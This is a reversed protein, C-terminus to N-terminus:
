RARGEQPGDAAVLSGDVVRVREGPRWAAPQSFTRWSGDDMRVTVRYVTRSRVTKGAEDDAVAGFGTGEGRTRVARVSDVVGCTACGVEAAIAAKRTDARALADAGGPRAAPLLGTVAAAVALSAVAISAAAGAVLPSVRQGRRAEM